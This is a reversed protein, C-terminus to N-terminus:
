GRAARRQLQDWKALLHAEKAPDMGHEAQRSHEVPPREQYDAWTDAITKALPRCVLGAAAAKRHDVEWTGVDVRWLPIETWQKVDQERLWPWAVWVPEATGDTVELCATILDRYTAHGLQPAVVNYAGTSGDEVRDLAFTAVDRVDVPQIRRDPDTLLWRGGRRARDFLTLMRGTYEGPGLIVGPRLILTGGPATQAAMECGAKLMGYQFRPELEAVDPDTERADIRSRWLPSTESVQRVPWSQYASVTSLLVYRGAGEGLTQLVTLVSWPDYASTDITADWPGAQALRHLDDVDTRDGVIHEAGEPPTGSRGRTFTTVEWGRQLADLVLQKGLFWTGGLILIRM